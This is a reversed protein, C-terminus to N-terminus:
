FIFVETLVFFYLIPPLPNPVQQQQVQHLKMVLEPPIQPPHNIPMNHQSNTRLVNEDHQSKNLM